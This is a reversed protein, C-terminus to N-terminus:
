GSTLKGYKQIIPSDVTLISSSLMIVLTNRLTLFAHVLVLWSTLGVCGEKVVNIHKLATANKGVYSKGKTASFSNAPVKSGLVTMRQQTSAIIKGM